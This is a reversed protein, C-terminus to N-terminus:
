SIEHVPHDWHQRLSETILKTRELRAHISQRLADFEHDSGNVNLKM